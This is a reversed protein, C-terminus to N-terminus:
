IPYRSQTQRDRPIPTSQESIRFRIASPTRRNSITLTLLVFFGIKRARGTLRNSKLLPNILAANSAAHRADIVSRRHIPMFISIIGFATASFGIVAFFLSMWYGHQVKDVLMQAIGIQGAILAGLRISESNV